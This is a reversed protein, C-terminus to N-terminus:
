KRKLLKSYRSRVIGKRLPMNTRIRRNDNTNIRKGNVSVKEVVCNVEEITKVQKPTISFVIDDYPSNIKMGDVDITSINHIPIQSERGDISAYYITFDRIGKDLNVTLNKIYVNPWCKEKLEKRTNEEDDLVGIRLLCKNKGSANFVCDNFYVDYPVYANYSSGIRIPDYNTFTCRDFVIDGFVSNLQNYKDSFNVKSFSVDRGYCHIDFRNIDSNEIRATNVNNTGFVGWNAKGDLHNGHFNWVNDFSIGYGSHEQSSYTGDITVNEFQVNTCDDIRIARDNRRENEPTCLIFNTIKVGNKGTIYFVNTIASSSETRSITLNKIEISSVEAGIYKCVPESQENNYPMVVKNRAIGDQILLIDKRQHGYSYGKRNEVWPNADEILLLHTGKTLQPVDRFEGRDINSKPISIPLTKERSEFLYVTKRVNKIVFTCGKFDNMRTLPIRVAKEPVEIEVSKVGQYNVNVGQRVAAQHTRLIVNYREEGTKAQSFGFDYPSVDSASNGVGTKSISCGIISLCIIITLWSIRM